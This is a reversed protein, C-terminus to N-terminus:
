KRGHYKNREEFLNLGTSQAHGEHKNTKITRNYRKRAECLYEWGFRTATCNTIYEKNTSHKSCLFNHCKM